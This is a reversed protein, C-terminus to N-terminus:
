LHDYKDIFEPQSCYEQKCYAVDCHFSGMACSMQAFAYEAKPGLYMSSDTALHLDGEPYFALNGMAEDFSLSYHADMSEIGRGGMSFKLQLRHMLKAYGTM